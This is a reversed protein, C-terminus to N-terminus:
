QPTADPAFAGVEESESVVRNSMLRIRSRGAIGGDVVRIYAVVGRYTDYSSDFILARLPADLRGRPPPVREIVARLLEEVGQGSKASVRLVDEPRRDVLEALERATEDADAAPLDIKNVM